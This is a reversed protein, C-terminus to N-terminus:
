RRIARSRRRPSRGDRRRAPPRSGARRPSVEPWSELASPPVGGALADRILGALSYGPDDTLARDVAINALAGHGARWAAFALLSAPPAVLSPEARRVVDSWFEIQWDDTTTRRWAFDRVPVHRLLLTLWAVEDDTPRQGRSARDLLGAVAEEGALRLARGGLVDAAAAGDILAALRNEARATAQRMSERALFGVPAVQGVLAARDPLVAQGAYTAAAAIQSTTPDYPTGEPPCCQPNDCLYSWFRGDETRLAEVIELGRDALAARTAPMLPDVLAAPGYGVIAAASSGQHAVVSAVYQVVAASNNQDPLDGRAAFVMRKQRLGVVVLSDTPHFGLLYPVAALLDAPSRVTLVPSGGSPVPTSTMGPLTATSLALDSAGTSSM